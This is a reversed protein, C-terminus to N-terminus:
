GYICVTSYTVARIKGTLECGVLHPCLVEISREVACRCLDQLEQRHAGVEICAFLDEPHAEASLAAKLPRMSDSM